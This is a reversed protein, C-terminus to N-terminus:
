EEKQKNERERERKWNERESERKAKIAPFVPRLQPKGSIAIVM